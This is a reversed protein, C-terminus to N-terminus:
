DQGARLGATRGFLATLPAGTLGHLVVSTAIVLSTVHWILPNHLKHEMLSVYYIAAVAVPGFWGVFLADPVSRVGTMLPRLCLLTPIRRLALVAVALGAGAWGLERWGAWPLAAGLLVFIPTAFFRNVAEQGRREEHREGPSAVQDFAVGAAFAVLVEDSGILRGGAVALLALAVTYVLRWDKQVAKWREAARLLGGAAACLAAGVLTAVLVDYLLTDTLWHSMAEGPPKTLMLFPLFVFLYALGDNAGSDFSIAHRLRDPLNREAVNGTVIPTAAVPDTPTVVSGILVALWFPVDLVLYVLAASIAWMMPMGLGTLVLMDRWHRCPYDRPIRLAVGFLGIGLTLRAAGELIRSQEGLAAPDFWNLAHPGVAVGVGLALLTPPFPSAELWQSALGLVLIVGGLLAIIVNFDHM